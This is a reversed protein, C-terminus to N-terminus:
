VEVQVRGVVFPLPNRGPVVDRQKRGRGQSSQHRGERAVAGLQLLLQQSRLRVSQEVEHHFDGHVARGLHLHDCGKLRSRMYGSRMSMNPIMRCTIFLSRPLGMM